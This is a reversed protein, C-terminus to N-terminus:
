KLEGRFAKQMLANFLDDIERKSKKQADKIKEVKEVILAFKQQLPLPPDVFKISYVDNRNLGPIAASKNLMKIRSFFKLLYFLFILNTEKKLTIYYTTDIPWFNEKSYHVEGISGKRGIIIGPGEVLFDRHEGVKGNSGYVSYGEGTRDREPLSKGYSFEFLDGGPTKEFDGKLFMENFVSKLYDDMLKDAQERKQKLQEAQELIQVIKKQTEKNEPFIIQIKNIYSKSIHKLGAGKFGEELLYIKSKLYYYIYKTLIDKISVVFCDNSASFNENVYHIGAQGGTSFILHEDKFTYDETFKKQESSSTFFKYAGEELGEGAKKGSKKEFEFIEGLEVEKWGTLLQKTKM